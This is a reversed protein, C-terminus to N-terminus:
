AAIPPSRRLRSRSRPRCCGDRGLRAGSRFGTWGRGGDAAVQLLATGGGAVVGEEAAARAANIADEILQARRKQEVPTAGGALIMATGGALRPM